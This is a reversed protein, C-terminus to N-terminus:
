AALLQQVVSVLVAPKFPKSLAANAGVSTAVGLLDDASFMGGGSIAVIPVDPAASRMAVIASIGEGDPLVLDSVIASPREQEFKALASHEDNATEVKYGAIRLCVALTGRLGADDEILLLPGRHPQQAEANM